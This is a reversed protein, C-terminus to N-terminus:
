MVAQPTGPVHYSNRTGGAASCRIFVTDRIRGPTGVLSQGKNSFLTPNGPEDVFYHIPTASRKAEITKANM